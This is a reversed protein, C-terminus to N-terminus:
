KTRRDAFREEGKQRGSNPFLGISGRNIRWRMTKTRVFAYGDSTAPFGLGGAFHGAGTVKSCHLLAGQM